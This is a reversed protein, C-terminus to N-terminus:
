FLTRVYITRVQLNTFKLVFYDFDRYSGTRNVSYQCKKLDKGNFDAAISLVHDFTNHVRVEDDCEIFWNVTELPPEPVGPDHYPYVLNGYEDVKPGVYEYDEYEEYEKDDDAEYDQCNVVSCTPCFRLDWKEGM